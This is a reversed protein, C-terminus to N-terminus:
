GIQLGRAVRMVKRTVHRKARKIQAAIGWKCMCMCLVITTKAM